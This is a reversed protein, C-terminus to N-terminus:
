EEAGKSDVALPSMSQRIKQVEEYLSDAGLRGDAKSGTLRQYEERLFDRKEQDDMSDVKREWENAVHEEGKEDKFNFRDVGGPFENQQYVQDCRPCRMRTGGPAAFLRSRCTPCRYEVNSM